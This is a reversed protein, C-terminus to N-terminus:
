GSNTGLVLSWMSTAGGGPSTGSLNLSQNPCFIIDDGVNVNPAAEIEIIVNDTLNCAGDSLQYQFEYTGTILGSVLSTSSTPEDITPSNPGNILTWNTTADSLGSLANGSLIISAAECLNQDEGAYPAPTYDLSIEDTNVPCGPTSAFTSWALTIEGAGNLKVDTDPDNIDVFIAGVNGSASSVSWAGNQGVGLDLADLSFVDSGGCRSEDLGAYAIPAAEGVTIEVVDFNSACSAFSNTFKFLYTGYASFIVDTTDEYPSTISAVEPGSIFSWEGQANGQAVSSFKEGLLQSTYPLSVGCHDQDEGAEPVIVNSRSIYLFVSDSCGNNETKWKLVWLGTTSTIDELVTSASNPDTIFAVSNSPGSAISWTGTGVSVAVAAIPVDANQGCITNSGVLQAQEPGTSAGTSFNITQTTNACANAISLEVTYTTNPLLNWLTLTDTGTVGQQNLTETTQVPSTIQWSVSDPHVNADFSTAIKVPGTGCFGPNALNLSSINPATYSIVVRVDDYIPDCENGFEAAYRFRYTGESLGSIVPNTEQASTATLPSASPGEIMTWIGRHKNVSSIYLGTGVLSTSNIGCGLVQDTGANVATFGNNSSIYLEREFPYNACGDNINLEYDYFGLPFDNASGILYMRLYFEEDTYLSSSLQAQLDSKSIKYTFPVGVAITDTPTGVEDDAGDLDVSNSGGENEFYYWYVIASDAFIGPAQHILVTITISDFASWLYNQTTALYRNSSYNGCGNDAINEWVWETKEAFTITDANSCYTDGQPKVHWAFKYPGGGSIVGSVTTSNQSSDSITLPAGATQVWEGVQDSPVPAANLAFSSPFSCFSGGEGADPAIPSGSYGGFNVEVSESGSECGGTVTWTFTYTGAVDVCVSTNSNSAGSDFTATGPGTYTWLGMGDLMCTGWLNTCLGCAQTNSAEAFFPEDTYSFSVPIIDSSYCGNKSITYRLNSTSSNLGIACTYKDPDPFFTATRTNGDTFTGYVGGSLSWSVSAGSEPFNGSVSIGNGDYCGTNLSSSLSATNPGDIVTIEVTDKPWNSDTCQVTLEFLYTGEPLVGSVETNLSNAAIFYSNAGSPQSVVSWLLTSLQTNLTSANGSLELNIGECFSNDIGANISCNQANSHYISFFGLTLLLIIRYYQM